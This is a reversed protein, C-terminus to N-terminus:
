LISNEIIVEVPMYQILQAFCHTSLLRVQPDKDSMCGLLPVVLLVVYTVVAVGMTDIVGATFLVM